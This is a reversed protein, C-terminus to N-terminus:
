IIRVVFSVAEILLVLKSTGFTDTISPNWQVTYVKLEYQLEHELDHTGNIPQIDGGVHLSCKIAQMYM